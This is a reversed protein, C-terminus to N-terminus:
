FISDPDAAEANLSFSYGQGIYSRVKNSPIGDADLDGSASVVLTTPGPEPPVRSGPDIMVFQYSFYANGEVFMPLQSWGAATWDFTRKSSGPVGPPNWNGILAGGPVGQRAQTTEEIAMYLGRMIGDREARRTRLTYRQFESIATSALLGIIAVSVMLEVLTFGRRSRPSPM